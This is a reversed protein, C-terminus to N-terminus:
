SGPPALVAQLTEAVGHRPDNVEDRNRPRHTNADNGLPVTSDHLRHAGMDVANTQQKNVM